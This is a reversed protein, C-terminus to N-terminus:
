SMLGRASTVLVVHLAPEQVSVSLDSDYLHTFSVYWSMPLPLWQLRVFIPLAPRVTVEPPNAVVEPTTRQAFSSSTVSSGSKTPIPPATQLSPPSVTVISSRIRHPDQSATFVSDRHKDSEAQTM